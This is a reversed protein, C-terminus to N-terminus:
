RSPLWVYKGNKNIYGSKGDVLVISLGNTFPIAFDYEHNIVTRGEKDIFGFKKNKEVRM